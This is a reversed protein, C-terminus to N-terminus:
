VRKAPRRQANEGALQKRSERASHPEPKLLIYQSLAVQGAEHEQYGLQRLVFIARQADAVATNIAQNFAGSEKLAKVKRPLRKEWHRRAILTLDIEDLNIRKVILDTTVCPCVLCVLALM